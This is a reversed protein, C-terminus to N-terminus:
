PKAEDRALKIHRWEVWAALTLAAMFGGIWLLDRAQSAIATANIVVATATELWPKSM